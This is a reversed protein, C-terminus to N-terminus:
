WDPMLGLGLFDGAVVGYLKTNPIEGKEVALCLAPWVLVHPLGHHGTKRFM